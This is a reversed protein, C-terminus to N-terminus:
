DLSFTMTELSIGTHSSPPLIARFRWYSLRGFIRIKSSLNSLAKLLYFLLRPAM